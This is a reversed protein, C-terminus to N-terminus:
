EALTREGFPSTLADKAYLLLDAQNLLPVRRADPGDLPWHAAAMAGNDYLAEVGWMQAVCKGSDLDYVQSGSPHWVSLYRGTSDLKFRADIHQMQLTVRAQAAAEDLRLVQLTETPNRRYSCLQRVLYGSDASFDFAATCEGARFLSAGDSKRVITLDNAMATEDLTIAYADTERLAPLAAADAASESVSAAEPPRNEPHIELVSL